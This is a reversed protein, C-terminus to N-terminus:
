ENIGVVVLSLQLPDPSEYEFSALLNSSHPLYQFVTTDELSYDVLSSLTINRLHLYQDKPDETQTMTHIGMPENCKAKQIWTAKDIFLREFSPFYRSVFFWDFATSNEGGQPESSSNIFMAYQFPISKLQLDHNSQKVTLYSEMINPIDLKKNDISDWYLDYGQGEKELSGIVQYQLHSNIINYVQIQMEDVHLCHQGTARHFDKEADPSICCLTHGPDDELCAGVNYNIACFDDHEYKEFSNYM